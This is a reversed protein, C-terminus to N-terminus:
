QVQKQANSTEVKQTLTEVLIDVGEGTKRLGFPDYEVGYRDCYELAQM